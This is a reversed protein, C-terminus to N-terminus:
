CGSVVRPEMIVSDCAAKKAFLVLFLKKYANFKRDRKHGERHEQSTFRRLGRLKTSTDHTNRCDGHM